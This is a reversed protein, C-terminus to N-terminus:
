DDSFIGVRQASVPRSPPTDNDADPGLDAEPARRRTLSYHGAILNSVVLAVISVVSLFLAIVAVYPWEGDTNYSVLSMSIVNTTPTSVFAAIPFERFILMFLLAASSAVGPMLLPLTIKRMSRFWTAGCVAAAEEIDKGIQQFLPGINRIAVPLFAVSYALVLLWITGYLVVPGSIFAVLFALGLLVLPLGLPLNAFFYALKAATGGVRAILIVVLLAVALAILTCGIALKLSTTAGARTLPDAWVQQYNSLVLNHFTIDPRWYTLLSVTLIALFPAVGALLFYAYTAGKFTRDIKRGFSINRVGSGRGSVTTWRTAKSTMQLQVVTLATAIAFLPLGAAAATGYSGSETIQNYMYTPLTDINLVLPVSFQSICDVIALSIAAFLAPRLPGAIARLMAGSISCGSVQYSELLETNMRSLSSAMITYVYPVAYLGMVCVVVVLSYASIPGTQAHSGILDRFWINLYGVRPSLLFLWGTAGAIAPITLPALPALPLVRREIHGLPLVITAVALVTGFVTAIAAGGVAIVATNIAMKSFGPAHLVQQINSMGLTGDVYFAAKIANYTPYLIAVALVAAVLAALLGGRRRTMM